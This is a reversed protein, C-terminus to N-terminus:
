STEGGNKQKPFHASKIVTESTYVEGDPGPIEVRISTTAYEPEFSCSTHGLNIFEEENKGNEEEREAM